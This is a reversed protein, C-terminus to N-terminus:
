FGFWFGVGGVGGAGGGTEVGGVVGVGAAKCDVEGASPAVHMECFGFTWTFNAAPEAGFVTFLLLKLTLPGNPSCSPLTVHSAEVPAAVQRLPGM